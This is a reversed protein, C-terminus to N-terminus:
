MGRLQNLIESVKAKLEPDGTLRLAEEYRMQAGGLDGQKVLIAAFNVIAKARREPDRSLGM